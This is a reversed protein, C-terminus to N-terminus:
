RRRACPVRLERQQTPRNRPVRLQFQQVAPHQRLARRAIRGHEVRWHLPDSGAALLRDAMTGRSDRATKCRGEKARTHHSDAVQCPLAQLTPRRRSARRTRAPRVELGARTVGRPTPVAASVSSSSQTGRGYNTMLWEYAEVVERDLGYGLLGGRVKEGFATAVGQEYYVLQESSTPTLFRLRWVNTNSTVTNWTGDLFLALRRPM